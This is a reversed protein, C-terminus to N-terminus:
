PKIPLARSLPRERRIMKAAEGTLRLYWDSPLGDYTAFKAQAPPDNTVKFIAIAEDVEDFMAVYAMDIELEAAAHFQRWYFDGGLRPITDLQGAAGKLNIWGFGPYIVPLYEAGAKKAAALDRQWYGTTAQKQKDIVTVNGVNWPSIVDLRRFARAWETDKQERWYWQCGGVLTVAYKDNAKLVDILAHATPGDFRDAYFGWVFLVPKGNHHLYQKDKTVQAEDVLKRWDKALAEVMKEKPFGSLDYCLAYVRGTREAAARVNALVRQSSPHSAEVLFRQLFVGDIGYAQMWEFHREVTRPHSSSFLTAPKGDPFAFEGATFREDEGYETMDPWMEFSISGPTIARSNRSWHRWGDTTGDGPTRFWGQYGCMVKRHMTSPDVVTASNADEGAGARTAYAVVMACVLASRLLVLM